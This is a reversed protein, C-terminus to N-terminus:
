AAQQPPDALGAEMVDGSRFQDVIGWVWDFFDSEDLETNIWARIFVTPGYEDVWDLIKVEFGREALAAIGPNVDEPDGFLADVQMRQLM